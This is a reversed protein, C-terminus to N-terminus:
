DVRALTEIEGAEQWALELADASKLGYHAQCAAALGLAGCDDLFRVFTAADRRAILWRVLAASQGYFVRQRAAGPPYDELAILDGVEWALGRRRAERFDADHDQQKEPSDFLLALGEDAWRPPPGATFHDALVVHVIEHALADPIIADGDGMVDIRRLSVADGTFEISTAGRAAEPAGGVEAAFSQPTAHVHIECRATWPRPMDDNLLRAFARQRVQEAHGRIAEARDPPVGHVSVNGPRMAPQEAPAQSNQLALSAVLVAVAKGGGAAAATWLGRMAKSGGATPPLFLVRQV